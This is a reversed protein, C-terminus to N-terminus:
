KLNFKVSFTTWCAVPEGNYIAPKFIWKKVSKLAAEDLGGPGSIVSKTVELDGVTGDAFIEVKLWVEGEINKLSASQPYMISTRKILYPEDSNQKISQTTSCSILLITSILIVIFKM